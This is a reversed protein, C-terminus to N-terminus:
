PVFAILAGSRMLNISIDHDILHAEEWWVTHQKRNARSVSAEIHRENQRHNKSAQSVQQVL